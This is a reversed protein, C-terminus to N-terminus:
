LPDRSDSIQHYKLRNGDNATNQTQIWDPQLSQTPTADSTPIWEFVVSSDVLFELKIDSHNGLTNLLSILLFSVM